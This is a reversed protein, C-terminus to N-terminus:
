PSVHPEGMTEDYWVADYPTGRIPDIPRWVDFWMYLRLMFVERRAVLRPTGIMLFGHDRFDPAQMCWNALDKAMSKVTAGLRDVAFYCRLEDVDLSYQATSVKDVVSLHYADHRLPLRPQPLDVLWRCNPKVLWRYLEQRAWEEFKDFAWKRKDDWCSVYDMFACFDAESPKVLPKLAQQLSAFKAVGPEFLGDHDFVNIQSALSHAPIEHVEAWIREMEPKLRESRFMKAYEERWHREMSDGGYSVPRDDYYFEAPVGQSGLLKEMGEALIDKQGLTSPGALAKAVEKVPVHEPAALAKAAAKGAVGAAAKGAVGAAALAAGAGFMSKLLDRRNM